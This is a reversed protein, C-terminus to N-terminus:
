LGIARYTERLASRLGPVLMALSLACIAAALVFLLMKSSGLSDNGTYTTGTASFVRGVWDAFHQMPGDGDGSAVRGLDVQEVKVTPGYWPLGLSGLLGLAALFALLLNTFPSLQRM